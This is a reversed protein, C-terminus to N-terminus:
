ERWAFPRRPMLVVTDLAKAFFGGVARAPMVVAGGPWFGGLRRIGDTLGPARVPATATEDGGATTPGHTPMLSEDGVFVDAGDHAAFEDAVDPRAAASIVSLPQTETGHETVNDDIM